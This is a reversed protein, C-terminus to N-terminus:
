ELDVGPLYFETLFKAVEQPIEELDSLNLFIIKGIAMTKNKETACYITDVAYFTDEGDSNKQKTVVVELDLHELTFSETVDAQNDKNQEFNIGPLYFETLFKAVEQPIEKLDSLTHFIIKGIAMTKNKETIGYITDDAYFTNEGDSNKQKTVAVEWDLHELMFSETVDAQNDKNQETM